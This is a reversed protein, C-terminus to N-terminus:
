EMLIKLPPGTFAILNAGLAHVDALQHTVLVGPCTHCRRVILSALRDRLAADLGSFPEDLVLLDSAVALARAIAVRRQLGGRLQRPLLSVAKVLGVLGIGNLAREQQNRHPFLATLNELVTAWPLLRNEQFVMAAQKPPDVIRGSQPRELGTLLRLLTTKGCGSPGTLCILGSSPLSLSFDKLVAPGNPYSFSVRELRM